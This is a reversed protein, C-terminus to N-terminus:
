LTLSHPVSSYILTTQVDRSDHLGAKFESPEIDATAKPLALAPTLESCNVCYNINGFVNSAARVMTEWCENDNCDLQVGHVKVANLASEAIAAQVTQIANLSSDSIVIQACGAGIFSQVM